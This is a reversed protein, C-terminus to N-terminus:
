DRGLHRAGLGDAAFGAAGLEDLASGAPLVVDARARTGRPVMAPDRALAAAMPGLIVAIGAAEPALRALEAELAAGADRGAAVVRPGAVPRARTPRGAGM